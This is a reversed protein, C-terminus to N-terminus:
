FVSLRKKEGLKEAGFVWTESWTLGLNESSVSKWNVPNQPKSFGLNSVRTQLFYRVCLMCLVYLVFIGIVFYM